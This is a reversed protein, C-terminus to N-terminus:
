VHTTEEKLAELRAHAAALRDSLWGAHEDSADTAQKWNAALRHAADRERRHQRAAFFQHLAVGALLLAVPDPTPM